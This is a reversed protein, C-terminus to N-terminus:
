TSVVRYHEQFCKLAYIRFPALFRNTRCHRPKKKKLHTYVAPAYKMFINRPSIIFIQSFIIVVIIQNYKLVTLKLFDPSTFGWFFERICSQYALFKKLDLGFTKSSPTSPLCYDFIEVQKKECSECFM